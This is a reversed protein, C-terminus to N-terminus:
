TAESRVTKDAADNELGLLNAHSDSSPLGVQCGAESDCELKLMGIRIGNPGLGIGRCYKLLM